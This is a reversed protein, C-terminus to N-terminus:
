EFFQDWSLGELEKSINRVMQPTHLESTSIQFSTFETSSKVEMIVVLVFMCTMFVNLLHDGSIFHRTGM